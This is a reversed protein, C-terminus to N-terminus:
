SPRQTRKKIAAQVGKSFLQIITQVEYFCSCYCCKRAFQLSFHQAFNTSSAM